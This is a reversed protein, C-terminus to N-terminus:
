FSPEVLILLYEAATYRALILQYNTLSWSGLFIPNKKNETRGAATDTFVIATNEVHRWYTIELYCRCYETKVCCRFLILPYWWLKTIYLQQLSFDHNESSSKWLSFCVAHWLSIWKDVAHQTTKKKGKKWLSYSRWILIFYATYSVFRCCGLEAHSNKWPSTNEKTNLPLSLYMDFVRGWYEYCTHCFKSSYKTLQQFYYRNASSPMIFCKLTSSTDWIWLSWRDQMCETITIHHQFHRWWRLIIDCCNFLTDRTMVNNSCMCQLGVRWSGYCNLIERQCVCQHYEVTEAAPETGRSWITM